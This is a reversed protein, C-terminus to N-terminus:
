LIDIFEELPKLQSKKVLYYPDGSGTSASQKYPEHVKIESAFNGWFRGDPMLWTIFVPAHLM